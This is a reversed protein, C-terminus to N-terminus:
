WLSKLEPSSARWARLTLLLPLGDLPTACLRLTRSAFGPKVVGQKQGLISMIYCLCLIFMIFMVYCLIFM